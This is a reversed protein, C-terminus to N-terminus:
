RVHRHAIRYVYLHCAVTVLLLSCHVATLFPSIPLTNDLALIPPYATPDMPPVPPYIVPNMPPGPPYMVPDMPLGPPYMVPHEPPVPPYIVPDMLPGQPYLVPVPPVVPFLAPVASTSTENPLPALLAPQLQQLDCTIPTLLSLGSLSLSLIWIFISTKM